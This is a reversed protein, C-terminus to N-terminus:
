AARTAEALQSLGLLLWCVGWLGIAYNSAFGPLAFSPLLVLPIFHGCALPTFRHWDAWCGARLVAVGLLTLGLAMLLTASSYFLVAIDMNILSIPEAVTLVVLGLLTLGVGATALRGRGAAGARALGVVGALLLLHSVANLAAIWWPPPVQAQFSALPIGLVITLAAGAITSWAALTIPSQAVRSQDLTNATM